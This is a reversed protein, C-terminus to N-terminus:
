FKVCNRAMMKIINFIHYYVHITSRNKYGRKAYHLKQQCM